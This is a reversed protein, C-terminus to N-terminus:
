RSCEDNVREEARPKVQAYVASAKLRLSISFSDRILERGRHLMSKVTEVNIGAIDSVERYSFGELLSLVAILRCDDPLNRNARKVDAESMALYSVQGSDNIRQQTVHPFHVLNGDSEDTNNAAPSLDPSPRYKSILANAMIRFLWVRCDPGSQNERWFRYARAFSEVVLDQADRENNVVYLATRYLSKLHLLTQEEFDKRKAMNQKM